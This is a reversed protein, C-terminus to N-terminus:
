AGGGAAAAPKVADAGASGNAPIPDISQVAPLAPM